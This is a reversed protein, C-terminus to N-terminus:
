YDIDNGHETGKYTTKAPSVEQHLWQNEDEPSANNNGKQEPPATSITAPKARKSGQLFQNILGRLCKSDLLDHQWPTYVFSEPRHLVDNKDQQKSHRQM